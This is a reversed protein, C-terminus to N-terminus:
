ERVNRRAFRVLGILGSGFLWVAAPIPVPAVFQIGRVSLPFSTASVPTLAGTAVDITSARNFPSPSTVTWLTGDSNFVMNNPTFSGPNGIITALGTTQSVTVLGQAAAWGYLTGSPSFALDGLPNPVGTSGVLTTAGTMPNIRYISSNPGAPNSVVGFLDGTPSFSLGTMTGTPKSVNYSLTAVTTALGTIPNITVLQDDTAGGVSYLVGSSSQALSDLRKIGSAGLLIQSETTPNMSFVNGSFAVGIMDATAPGGGLLMGACALSLVCLLKKM